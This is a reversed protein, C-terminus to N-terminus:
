YDEYSGQYNVTVDTNGLGKGKIQVTFNKADAGKISIEGNLLQMDNELSELEVYSSAYNSNRNIDADGLHLLNFTQNNPIEKPSNMNIFLIAVNNCNECSSIQYLSHTTLWLSMSYNGFDNKFRSYYGYKLEFVNDGIKLYNTLTEASEADEKEHKINDSKCGLFLFILCVTLSFVFNNNFM